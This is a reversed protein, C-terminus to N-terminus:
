ISFYIPVYWLDLGKICLRNFFCIQLKSIKHLIVGGTPSKKDFRGSQLNVSIQICYGGKQPPFIKKVFRGSQLNVSIQMCFGAKQLNKEFRGSQLNVSIQM